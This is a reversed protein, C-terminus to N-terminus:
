DPNVFGYSLIGSSSTEMGMNTRQRLPDPFKTYLHSGSYVAKQQSAYMTWVAEEWRAKWDSTQQDVGFFLGSEVLAGYLLVDPANDTLWNNSYIVGDLAPSYQYAQIDL